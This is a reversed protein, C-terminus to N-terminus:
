DPLNIDLFIAKEWEIDEIYKDVAKDIEEDPMEHDTLNDIEYNDKLFDFLDSTDDKYIITEGDHYMEKLTYEKVECDGISGMYSSFEDGAVVDTDVMPLVPLSPNEIM